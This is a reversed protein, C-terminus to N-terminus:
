IFKIKRKEYEMTNEVLMHLNEEIEKELEQKETEAMDKEVEEWNDLTDHVSLSVKESIITKDEKNRLVYGEDPVLFRLTVETTKM